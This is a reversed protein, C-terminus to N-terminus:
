KWGTVEQICILTQKFFDKMLLFKLHFIESFMLHMYNPNGEITFICCDLKRCGYAHNPSLYYILQLTLKFMLKNLFSYSRVAPMTKISREKSFRQNGAICHENYDQWHKRPIISIKDVRVCIWGRLFCNRKDGIYFLLYKMKSFM